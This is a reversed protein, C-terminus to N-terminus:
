GVKLRGDPQRARHTRRQAKNEGGGRNIKRERESNHPNTNNKPKLLARAELRSETQAHGTAQPPYARAQLDPIEKAMKAM